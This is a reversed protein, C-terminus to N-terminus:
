QQKFDAGPLSKLRALKAGRLQLLGNILPQAFADPSGPHIKVGDAAPHPLSCCKGDIIQIRQRAMDAAQFIHANICTLRQCGANALSQTRGVALRSHVRHNQLNLPHARHQAVLNCITKKVM